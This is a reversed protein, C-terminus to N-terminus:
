DLVVPIGLMTAGIKMNDVISGPTTPDVAVSISQYLMGFPTALDAASPEEASWTVPPAPIADGDVAGYLTQLSSFGETIAADVETGSPGSGSAPQSKLWDRFLAYIATTGALNARLDAMTRQAYRSEEEGNAANNVKEQQELMLGVLGTFAGSVDLHAAHTWLELLMATDDILKACLKTRFATAQAETQPYAAPVYGPLSAEFAVVNTPISASYLIREIAHMGTVGDDDFLNADGDDGLEALFGDYREDIALDIDPFIPATAGEVHEYATRMDVWAAKMATIAAADETASWGRGTPTPAAAQLAVAAAHLAELDAKMSTQMARAVEEQETGSGAGGCGTAAALMTLGLGIGQLKM